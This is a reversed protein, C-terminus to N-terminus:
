TTGRDVSPATAATRRKRQPIVAAAGAAAHAPHAAAAVRLTWSMGAVGVGTFAYNSAM